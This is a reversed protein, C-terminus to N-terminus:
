FRLFKPSSHKEDCRRQRADKTHQAESSCCVSGSLVGRNFLGGRGGAVFQLHADSVREPNGLAHLSEATDDDVLVTSAGRGGLFTGGGGIIQVPLRQRLFPVAGQEAGTVVYQVFFGVDCRSARLQPEIRAAAGSLSEELGEVIEGSLRPM